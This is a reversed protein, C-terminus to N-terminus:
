DGTSRPLLRAALTEGFVPEDFARERFMRQVDQAAARFRPRVAWFSAFTAWAWVVYRQLEARWVPAYRNSVVMSGRLGEIMFAPHSPTSTGGLHLLGTDVLRCTWGARAFRLCWDTEENTFRQSEDMAGVKSVASMRVAQLCGSLWPVSVSGLSRGTRGAALRWGGSVARWQWWRYPLGQDQLRGDVDTVLPGAMACTPDADLVTLLDPLTTPSVFADANMHVFFDTQCAALAANVAAAYGRNPVRLLEVGDPLWGDPLPQVDGTDVVIVRAGHSHPLLRELCVALEKPTQYNIVAVTLDALM